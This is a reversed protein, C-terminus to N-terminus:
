DRRFLAPLGRWFLALGFGWMTYIGIARAMAATNGNAFLPTGKILPVLIWAGVVLPLLLCFLIAFLWLPMAAPRRPELIAFLIGWMGGWFAANWVLPVGLPPVPTQRFAPGAVWGLGHFFTITGQHFFLVGLFACLFGFALTTPKM